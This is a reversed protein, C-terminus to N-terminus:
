SLVKSYATGGRKAYLVFSTGNHGIQVYNDNDVFGQLIVDGNTAKTAVYRNVLNNNKYVELTGNALASFALGNTLDMHLNGSPSVGIYALSGNM